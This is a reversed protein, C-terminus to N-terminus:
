IEWLVGFYCYRCVLQSMLHTCSLANSSWRKGGMEKESSEVREVDTVKSVLKVEAECGKSQVRPVWPM